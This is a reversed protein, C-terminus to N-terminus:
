FHNTINLSLFPSPPPLPCPPPTPPPASGQQSSAIPSFARISASPSSPLCAHSPSDFPGFPTPHPIHAQITQTFSLGYLVSMYACAMYWVFALGYAMWQFRPNIRKAGASEEGGKKKAKGTEVGVAKGLAAAVVAASGRRATAGGGGTAPRSSPNAAGRESRDADEEPDDFSDTALFVPRGEPAGRTVQTHVGVGWGWRQTIDGGRQEKSDSRTRSCLSPVPNPGCWLRLQRGRRPEYPCLEGCSSRGWRRRAREARWGRIKLWRGWYGHRFTPTAPAATSGSRTHQLSFASCGTRGRVKRGCCLM